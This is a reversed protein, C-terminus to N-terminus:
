VQSTLCHRVVRIIMAPVEKGVDELADMTRGRSRLEAACYHLFKDVVVTAGMLTNKANSTVSLDLPNPPFVGTVPTVWEEIVLFPATSSSAM